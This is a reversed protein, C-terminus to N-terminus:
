IDDKWLVLFNAEPLLIKLECLVRARDSDHGHCRVLFNKYNEETGEFDPTRLRKQTM